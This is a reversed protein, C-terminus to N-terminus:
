VKSKESMLLLVSHANLSTLNYTFVYKAWESKSFVRWHIDGLLTSHAVYWVTKWSYSHIWPSRDPFIKRKRNQDRFKQLSEAVNNDFFWLGVHDYVSSTSAENRRKLLDASLALPPFLILEWHGCLDQLNPFVDCSTLILLSCSPQVTPLLYGVLLLANDFTHFSLHTLSLYHFARSFSNKISYGNSQM